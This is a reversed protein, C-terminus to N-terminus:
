NKNDTGASNKGNNLDKLYKLVKKDRKRISKKYSESFEINEPKADWEFSFLKAPNSLPKKLHPNLLYYINLRMREWKDRDQKQWDDLAYDLEIPCLRYFDKALISFRNLAIGCLEIVKLRDKKLYSSFKTTIAGSM